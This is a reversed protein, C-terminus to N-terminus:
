FGEKKWDVCESPTQNPASGFMQFSEAVSHMIEAHYETFDLEYMREGDFIREFDNM